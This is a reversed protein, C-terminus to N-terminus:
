RAYGHYALRLYEDALANIDTPQMEGKSSRSHEMMSKVISDARKGHTVVKQLNGAIDDAISIVEEKNGEKAENKLEDVLEISVESFNNVFNLPNQIEHAIGATLEGLSAMKESQILQAQTLKLEDLTQEVKVKQVNIEEKQKQLLTYAKHKNRNNRYLIFAIILVAALEGLLSYMRLRNQYKLQSAEIEKQKEQEKLVINQVAMTKERSFLSDKINLVIRLYKLISDSNNQSEYIDALMGAAKLLGVPYRKEIKESLVKKSYWAASDFNDKAKYVSAIGNYSDILDMKRSNRQSLFISTWYIFLASDYNAKGAYANGLINSTYSEWDSGKSQEYAKRAYLMASDPQDLRQYVDAMDWWISHGEVHFAQGIRVNELVYRLCTNYQGLSYYCYGVIGNAAIVKPPSNIKKALSLAKFGHDLALPYNGLALLSGALESEAELIGGEFNIKKALDLAQQAYAAGTDAYMQSYLYGLNALLHVKNTDEKAITLEHKLRNINFQDSQQAEAVTISLIIILIAALSKM